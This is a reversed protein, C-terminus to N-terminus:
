FRTSNENDLIKALRYNDLMSACNGFLEQDSSGSIFNSPSQFYEIKQNGDQIIKVGGLNDDTANRAVSNRYADVVILALSRELQTPIPLMYDEEDVTPDLLDAEYQAVLSDRNTYALARDVVDRVVFDLLTSDTLSSNLIIAYAKIATITGEM